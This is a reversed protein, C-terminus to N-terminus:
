VSGSRTKRYQLAETEQVPLAELTNNQARGCGCPACPSGRSMASQLPWAWALVAGSARKLRLALLPHPSVQAGGRGIPLDHMHHVHRGALGRGMGSMFRMSRDRLAQAEALLAPPLSSLVADDSLLVEERVEPPFTALLTALDMEAPGGAAGPAAGGAGQRGANSAAAAQACADMDPCAETM